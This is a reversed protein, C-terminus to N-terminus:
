HSSQLQKAKGRGGGEEGDAARVSFAVLSGSALENVGAVTAVAHFAVGVGIRVIRHRANGALVLLVDNIRQVAVLAALAGVRRHHRLRLTQGVLVDFVDGGIEGAKGLLGYLPNRMVRANVRSENAASANADVESIAAPLGSAPLVLAATQKAQWPASPLATSGCYGRRAPCYLAYRCCASCSYLLPPRLLAMMFPKAAVSDSWSMSSM